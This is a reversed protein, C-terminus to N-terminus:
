LVVDDLGLQTSKNKDWLACLDESLHSRKVIARLVYEKFYDTSMSFYGDKGYETSWSNLVQLRSHEHIGTFTMVHWPEVDGYELRQARSFDGQDGYYYDKDFLAPDFVGGELDKSYRTDSSFCVPDGASVSTKVTGLLIGMPVNIYRHAMGGSVNRYYPAEYLTGYPYKEMPNNGIVIYDEPQFEVHKVAFQQPTLENVTKVKGNSTEYTWDFQTPPSGMHICLIGYVKKLMENIDDKGERLDRAFRRLTSSLEFNMQSTNETSYTAKMHELPVLGYKKVINAFQVWKGGEEIPERLRKQIEKHSIPEQRLEKMRLLFMHAKELKDYFAVYTQSFQFDNPLNFRKIFDIRHVNLIAFIWCFLSKKQDAATVQPKIKQSFIHYPVVADRKSAESIGVRVVEISQPIRDFTKQYQELMEETITQLPNGASFGSTEPRIGPTTTSIGSTTTIAAEM